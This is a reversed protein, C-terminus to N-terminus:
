KWTYVNDKNVGSQSDTGSGVDAKGDPGFSFVFVSGKLFQRESAIGAAFFPNRVQGDADLDLIVIYPNGWPDRYVGDAGVQSPGNGQAAAATSIAASNKTSSKVDLFSIRDPNLAHAPNIPQNNASRIDPDDTLIAILERNSVARRRDTVVSAVDQNRSTLINGGPLNMDETGFVFGSMDPNGVSQAVDRTAKTAPLRSYKTEYSNVAAALNGMETAAKKIKAKRVAGSLAPLLMGALVGIIAIVVLLEILTFGPLLRPSTQIKM